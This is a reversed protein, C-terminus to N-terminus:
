KNAVAWPWLAAAVTHHIPNRFGGARVRFPFLGFCAYALGGGLTIYIINRYARFIPNFSCIFTIYEFFGFVCSLSHPFVLTLIPCVWVGNM